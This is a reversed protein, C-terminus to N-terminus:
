LGDHADEGLDFTADVSKHTRLAVSWYYLGRQLVGWRDLPGPYSLMHPTSRVLWELFKLSSSEEQESM